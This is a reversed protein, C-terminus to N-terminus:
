TQSFDYPKGDFQRWCGGSFRLRVGNAYLESVKQSWKRKEILDIKTLDDVIFFNEASLAQRAGKLVRVKDQYFSVKVLIHRPRNRVQKGDRHARELSCNHLGVKELVKSAIKLCDENDEQQYGVIRFNNRRSFREQKNLLQSHEDRSRELGTVKTELLNCKEKLSANEKKLAEINKKHKDLAKTFDKRIKKLESTIKAIALDLAETFDQEIGAM